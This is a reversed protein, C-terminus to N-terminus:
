TRIYTHVQMYTDPIPVRYARTNVHVNDGEGQLTCVLDVYTYLDVGMIDPGTAVRVIGM